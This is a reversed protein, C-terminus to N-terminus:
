LAITGKILGAGQLVKISHRFENRISYITSDSVKDGAKKVQASLEEVTIAPKKLIMNKVRVKLDREDLTGRPVRDAKEAKDPKTKKGASAAAKKATAKKAPPEKKAAAKKALAKKAPKTTVNDSRKTSKKTSKKTTKPAEEEDDGEDDESEDDAPEDDEAEGEDDAEGDDGEEESEDDEAEEDGEDEAAEDEAAEDEPEEEDDFDAIPENANMAKIAAVVWSQVDEPLKKWKEEPIGNNAAEAMAALFAQRDEFDAEAKRTVAILKKERVDM